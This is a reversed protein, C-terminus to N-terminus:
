FVGPNHRQGRRELEDVVRQEIREVVLDVLADLRRDVAADSVETGGAVPALPSHTVGGAASGAAPAARGADDPLAPLNASMPEAM